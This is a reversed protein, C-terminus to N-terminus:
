TAPIVSSPTGRIVRTNSALFKRTVRVCQGIKLIRGIGVGYSDVYESFFGSLRLYFCNLCLLSCIVCTNVRTVLLDNQSKYPQAQSVRIM